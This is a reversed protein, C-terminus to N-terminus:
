DSKEGAWAIDHAIVGKEFSLRGEKQAGLNLEWRSENGTRAGRSADHSNIGVCSEARKPIADDSLSVNTANRHIITKGRGQGSPQTRRCVIDHRWLTAIAPQALSQFYEDKITHRRRDSALAKFLPM